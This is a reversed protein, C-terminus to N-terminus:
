LAPLAPALSPAHDSAHVRDDESRVRHLHTREEGVHQVQARDVRAAAPEDERQRRGLQSNMRSVAVAAVLKIQHTVVNMGGEGLQLGFADLHRTIDGILSPPEQRRDAQWVAPFERDVLWADM